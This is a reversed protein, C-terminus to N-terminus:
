TVLRSGNETLRAVLNDGPCVDELVTKAIGMTGHEVHRAVLLSNVRELQVHAGGSRFRNPSTVNKRMTKIALAPM